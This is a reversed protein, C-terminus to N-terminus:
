ETELWEAFADYDFNDDVVGIKRASLFAAVMQGDMGVVGSRELLRWGPPSITGTTFFLYFIPDCVRIALNSYMEGSVNSYVTSRALVVSGVLERIDPTAAHGEVYHKAQGVLWVNLIANIGPLLNDVTGAAGVSMRGYFDIGEDGSAKTLTPNTAGLEQLMKHCAEEFQRPTLTRLADSYSAMRGRRIKAERILEDEDGELYAYGQIMYDSSSNFAYGCPRGAKTLENYNWRLQTLFREEWAEAKEAAASANVGWGEGVCIEIILERAPRPPSTLAVYKELVKAASSPGPRM